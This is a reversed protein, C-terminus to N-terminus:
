CLCVCQGDPQAGSWGSLGTGGAGDGHNKCAPHGEQRGVLLTLASFAVLAVVSVAAFFSKYFCLQCGNRNTTFAV